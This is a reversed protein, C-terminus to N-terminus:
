NEDIFLSLGYDQQVEEGHLELANLLEDLKKETLWTSAKFDNIDSVFQLLWTKLFETKIVQM